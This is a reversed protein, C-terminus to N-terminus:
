YVRPPSAGGILYVIASVSLLVVVFIVIVMTIAITVGLIKMVTINDAQFLEKLTVWLLYYMYVSLVIIIAYALISLIGLVIGAILGIIATLAFGIGFLIAAIITAIVIMLMSSISYVSLVYYVETFSIEKGMLKAVLHIILTTVLSLITVIILTAIPFIVVAAVGVLESVGKILSLQVVLSPDTTAMSQSISEAIQGFVVLMIGFILAILVPITNYNKLATLFDAKRVEKSVETEPNFFFNILGKIM